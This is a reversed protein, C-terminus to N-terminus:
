GLTVAFSPRADGVAVRCPRDAPFAVLARRDAADLVLSWLARPTITAVEGHHAARRLRM